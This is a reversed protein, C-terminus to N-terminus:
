VGPASALIGAGRKRKERTWEKNPWAGRTRVRCSESTESLFPFVSAQLRRQALPAAGHESSRRRRGDEVWLHLSWGVRTGSLGM